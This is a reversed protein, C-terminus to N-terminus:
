SCSQVKLSSHFLPPVKYLIFTVNMISLLESLVIVLELVNRTARLYWETNAVNLNLVVYFLSFLTLLAMINLCIAKFYECIISILSYLYWYSHLFYSSDSLLM